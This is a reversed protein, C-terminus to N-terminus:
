FTLESVFKLLKRKEDSTSYWKSMTYESEYAGDDVPMSMTQMVIEKGSLGRSAYFLHEHKSEKRQVVDKTIYKTIYRAVREHDKVPSLSIFGFRNAYYPIDLYGYENRALASDPIDHFLGHMHWSKGDKHKEPILIYKMSSDYKKNFNGIWVGLDHVYKKLDERDQKESNLTLTVFYEWPNCLALELIRSRARSINCQAKETETSHSKKSLETPCSDSNESLKESLDPLGMEKRYERLFDGDCDITEPSEFFQCESRHPAKPPSKFWVVKYVDGFRYIRTVAIKSEM